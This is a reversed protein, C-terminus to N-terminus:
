EAPPESDLLFAVADVVANALQHPPAQHFQEWALPKQEEYRDAAGPFQHQWHLRVAHGIIVDLPLDGDINLDPNSQWLVMLTSLAEITLQRYVPAEIKNLLHEVRLAFNAEGPTMGGLVEKSGLRRKRNLKDGIIIGDCHELLTWIGAFFSAPLRGIVGQHERWQGWDAFEDGLGPHPDSEDSFRLQKLTSTAGDSRLVELGLLSSESEHIHALVEAVLEAIRHPPLELLADIAQNQPPEHELRTTLLLMLHGIRLTLVDDFLEPTTTILSGLVLIIEQTLIREREDDGVFEHLMAIITERGVPRSLTARQSYSRGIGLRKQHLLLEAVADVLRPSTKDLMGAVRRVVAWQRQQAARRYLEQLLTKVNAPAGDTALTPVGGDLGIRFSLSRLLELQEYLNNSLPLRQLLEDDQPALDWHTVEAVSLPRTQGADFGLQFPPAPADQLTTDPFQFDHLFDIRERATTALHRALPAVRVRVGAFQGQQLQRVVSLLVDSDRDALMDQDIALVLLPRGPQDWHRALYRLHRALDDSLLRDDLGLYFDNQNLFQPLFVMREGALEYVQATALPRMRRAPRGSLGLKHNVGLWAYAQMLQDAPRVAIPGIQALTESPIRRELLAQQVTADQALLAIQIRPDRQRGLRLRRGLPDIDAAYLHGDQILSGLMYLSQAWVLPLNENAQRPCSGPAAKEASIYQQEVFYLEPLLRRGDQELTLADLRSRYDAARQSDGSFEANLMLYGFFLPWESEIHEFCKLEEAEYHLRDADEIATQHGDLLFRKCGYRGELKDVIAAQTRDVLEIDEVAFAPFGIVSLVAADVEKSGSERPLLAHLTARCRAIDDAVVHIKAAQGGADGFLDFGSMAELAAKAMGISSANLERQGSNIKNGREWIGYDPTRYARGIYHVLNQVFNVEDLTFVIRLGSATMQALMLLFLSTADLQLHGWDSDGVVADGSGTDYKAHLADVPDQSRKFREVRDAQKMMANLLGRMLKVTSQELRYAREEGEDLRRFALALGWAALISYVNDRVWADTYDGHANVATSAPLLGTIPNQRSLIIDDIQELCRDLHRLRADRDLRQALPKANM